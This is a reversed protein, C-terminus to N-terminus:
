NAVTQVVIKDVVSRKPQLVGRTEHFLWGVWERNGSGLPIACFPWFCAFALAALSPFALRRQVADARATRKFAQCREKTQTQARDEV